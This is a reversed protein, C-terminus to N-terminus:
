DRALPLDFAIKAGGRAARTLRIEGGHAELIQRALTLGIGLGATRPDSTTQFMEIPGSEVEPGKGNDVVELRCRGDSTRVRIEIRAADPTFKEANALVNTFVSYIKREDGDIEVEKRPWVVRIRLTM